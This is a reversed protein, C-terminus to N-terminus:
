KKADNNSINFSIKIKVELYQTLYQTSNIWLFNPKLNSKPTSQLVQVFFIRLFSRKIAILGTWLSVNKFGAIYFTVSTLYSKKKIEFKLGPIYHSIKRSTNLILFLSILWWLNVKQCHYWIKTPLLKYIIYLYLYSWPMYLNLWGQLIWFYQINQM